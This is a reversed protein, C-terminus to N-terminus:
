NNESSAETSSLAHGLAIAAQAEAAIAAHAESTDRAAVTISQLAESMERIQAQHQQTAELSAKVQLLVCKAAEQKIEAQSQQLRAIEEEHRTSDRQANIRQEALESRLYAITEREEGLGAEVTPVFAVTGGVQLVADRLHDPSM